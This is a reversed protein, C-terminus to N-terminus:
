APVNLSKLVEDVSLTHIRDACKRTASAWIGDLGAGIIMANAKAEDDCVKAAAEKMAEAAALARADAECKLDAIEGAAKYFQTYYKDRDIKLKMYDTSERAEQAALKKELEAIRKGDQKLMDTAEILESAAKPMDGDRLKGAQTQLRAILEARDTM